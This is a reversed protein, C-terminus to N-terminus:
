AGARDAEAGQRKKASPAPSAGTPEPLAKTPATALATQTVVPGTAPLLYQEFIWGGAGSTPDTVRAWGDQRDVVQLATGAPYFFLVPSSISAESHVKAALTVSVWETGPAIGSQASTPKAESIPVVSSAPTSSPAIEPKRLPVSARQSNALAPLDSGWSRLQRAGPDGLSEGAFLGQPRDGRLFDHSLVLVGYIGAGILSLVLLGKM